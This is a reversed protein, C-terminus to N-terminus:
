LLLPLFIVVVSHSTRALNCCGFEVASTLLCNLLYERWGDIWSGNAFKFFGDICPRNGTKRQNAELNIVNSAENRTAAKVGGCACAVPYFGISSLPDVAGGKWTGCM